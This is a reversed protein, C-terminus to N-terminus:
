IVDTESVTWTTDIFNATTSSGALASVSAGTSADNSSFDSFTIGIFSVESLPYGPITSDQIRVQETGGVIVCEEMSDVREGCMFTAGDLVPQLTELSADFGQNPCLIFDYSPQPTGGGRIFDLEAQMDANMASITLYGDFNFGPCPITSSQQLQASVM